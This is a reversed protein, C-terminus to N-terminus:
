SGGRERVQEAMVMAKGFCESLMIVALVVVSAKQLKQLWLWLLYNLSILLLSFDKDSTRGCGISEWFVGVAFDSGVCPLSLKQM